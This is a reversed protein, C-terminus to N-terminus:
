DFWRPALNFGMDFTLRVVAQPNAVSLRYIERGGMTEARSSDFLLTSGDPSWSPIGEGSTNDTVPTPNRGDPDILWISNSQDRTSNFAIRTGDPSWSPCCDGGPSQTINVPNTGDAEMVIIETNGFGGVASAYAIYRGDPSWTPSNDQLPGQSLQRRNSGDFDMTWIRIEGGNSVTYAITHGDPSLDPQSGPALQRASSGDMPMLFIGPGSPVLRTLLLQTGGPLLIANGGATLRTPTSGNPTISWVSSTGNAVQHYLIVNALASDCMMRVDLRALDFATVDVDTPTDAAPHCNDAVDELVVSTRGVPLDRLVLSDQTAVQLPAFASFVISYGSTDLTAGGTHVVVELDGTTPTSPPASPPDGQEGCAGLTALLVITASLVTRTSPM